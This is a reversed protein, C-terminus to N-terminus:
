MEGNLSLNLRTERERRSNNARREGQPCQQPGESVAISGGHTNYSFYDHKSCGCCQM